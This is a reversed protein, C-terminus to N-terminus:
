GFAMPVTRSLYAKRRRELLMSYALSRSRMQTRFRTPIYRKKLTTKPQKKTPM